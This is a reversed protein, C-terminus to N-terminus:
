LRSVMAGMLAGYLVSGYPNSTIPCTGTSCGIFYYFLFGAIGGIGIGLVLGWPIRRTKNKSM